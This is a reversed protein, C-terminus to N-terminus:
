HQHHRRYYHHGGNNLKLCAIWRAGVRTMKNQVFIRGYLCVLRGALRLVHPRISPRETRDVLSRVLPRAAISSPGSHVVSRNLLDEAWVKRECFISPAFSSFTVRDIQIRESRRKCLCVCVRPSVRQRVDVGRIM